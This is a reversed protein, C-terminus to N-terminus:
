RRQGPQMIQCDLAAVKRADLQEGAHLVELFPLQLVECSKFHVALSGVKVYGAPPTPVHM